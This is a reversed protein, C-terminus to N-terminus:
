GEVGDDSVTLQPGFLAGILGRDFNLLLLAKGDLTACLRTRWPLPWSTARESRRVRLELCEGVDVLGDLWGRLRPHPADATTPECLTVTSRYQHHRLFGTDSRYSIREVTGTVGLAEAERAIRDLPIVAIPDAAHFSPYLGLAAGSFYESMM